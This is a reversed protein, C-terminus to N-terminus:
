FIQRKLENCTKERYEENSKESQIIEYQNENHIKNKENISADIEAQKLM